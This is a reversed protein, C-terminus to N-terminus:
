KQNAAEDRLVKFVRLIKDRGADGLSGFAKEVQFYAYKRLGPKKGKYVLFLFFDEVMFNAKIPAVKKMFELFRPAAARLEEINLKGDHNVDYISMLSEAYHLMMVATRLDATEIKGGTSDSVRAASMLNGYFETWQSQSMTSVQKVLGPLNDFYLGFNKYLNEKFCAEDMLPYEFIDRGQLGCGRKLIDERIFESSSVGGSFLLSVFDFTENYDMWSDGNGKFTFFNAEKFSRSGSNKSRSDFAKLDIGIRNFDAYWQELGAETMLEQSVVPSHTSGYGLLLARGLARMLNWKTLSKWSQRYPTVDGVVMQRGKSNYFAPYKNLLLGKGEDWAIMLSEQELNETTLSQTIVEMPAFAGVANKLDSFGMTGLEDFPLNDILNQHLQYIKLEHKLALLHIRELGQLGRSDGRRQPDLIRLVVKKYTEKVALSSLGMPMLKRTELVDLLNDISSFSIMGLKRMPLSGELLTLADDAALLLSELKAPTDFENEKLFYHYRLVEKYLTVVTTVANSWDSIRDLRSNEGILINKVAEVLTVDSSLQDTLLFTENANIFSNLGNTFKKFDNFSYDSNVLDVERFLTWLSEHLQSTGKNVDMWTPSMKKGLLTTVHPAVLIAQKKLIDLIEVIRQIEFKTISRDSGGVVVKKLKFLQAGFESSVNNKKLFYKGFFNRLDEMSYADPYTGHTKNKFYLLAEKACDFGKNIDSESVQGKVFETMEEPLAQLCVFKTNPIELTQPEQHKEDLFDSCAGLWLLNAMLVFSVSQSFRRKFFM